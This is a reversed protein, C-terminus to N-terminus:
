GVGWLVFVCYIVGVLGYVIGVVCMLVCLWVVCDVVCVVFVIVGGWVVWFLMVFVYDVYVGDLLVCGVFLLVGGVFVFGGCVGVVVVVLVDM